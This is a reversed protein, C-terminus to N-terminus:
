TWLKISTVAESPLLAWSRGKVGRASYGPAPAQQQTVGAPAPLTVPKEQPLRGPM